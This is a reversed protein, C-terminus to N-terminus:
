KEASSFLKIISKKEEDSMNDWEDSVISMVDETIIKEKGKFVKSIIKLLEGFYKMAMGVSFRSTKELNDVLKEMEKIDVGCIDKLPEFISCQNTISYLSCALAKDVPINYVDMIKEMHMWAKEVKTPEYGLGVLMGVYTRKDAEKKSIPPELKDKLPNKCIYTIDDVKIIESLYSKANKSTDICVVQYPEVDENEKWLGIATITGVHREEDGVCCIVNDRENFTTTVGDDIFNICGRTEISVM